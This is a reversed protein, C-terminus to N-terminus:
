FFGTSCFLMSWKPSLSFIVNLDFDVNNQALVYLLKQDCATM